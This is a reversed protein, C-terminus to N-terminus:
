RQETYFVAGFFVLYELFLVMKFIPWWAFSYLGHLIRVKPEFILIGFFLDFQM